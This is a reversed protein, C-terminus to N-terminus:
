RRTLATLLAQVAATTDADLPTEAEAATIMEVPLGAAHAAEETTLEARYRAAYLRQGLTAGPARAARLMLDKYCKRVDSLILATAPAGTSARAAAAGAVRELKRLEALVNLVRDTFTPDQASPLTAIAANIAGLAVEIADTMEPAPVTNTLVQTKDEDAFLRQRRLRTITGRPWGLADELKDRTQTRPWRRGKEFDILTGQNAVGRKALERKSLRLEERRAAVAAGARAVGPDFTALTQEDDEEDSLHPATPIHPVGVRYSFTVPIGHPSGLHITLGETIPIPITFHRAGGVFIGNRSQQDVVVWGTPTCDLRAHTRSIREDALCIQAPHERGIIIPADTEDATLTQDATQIVLATGPHKPVAVAPPAANDTTQM